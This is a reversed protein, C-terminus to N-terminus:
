VLGGVNTSVIGMLFASVAGNNCHKHIFEILVSGNESIESPKSGDSPEFGGLAFLKVVGIVDGKNAIKQLSTSEINARSCFNCFLLSAKFVLIAASRAADSDGQTIPFFKTVEQETQRLGIAQSVKLSAYLKSRSAEFNEITKTLSKNSDTM